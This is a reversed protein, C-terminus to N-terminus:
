NAPTKGRLIVTAIGYASLKTKLTRTDDPTGKFSVLIRYWTTGGSESQTVRAPFGGGQLKKQMAQAAASNTFAAVQYVYDYVARDQNNQPKGPAPQAAPPKVAPKSAVTAAPKAPPAAPKPTEARARSPADVSTGAPAPAPKAAPPEKARLTDHYRLEQPQLVKDMAADAIDNGSAPAPMVRALEPVIEEPNHGRGLMIGFIFVWVLIFLGFFSGFVVKPLGLTVTLTKDWLRKRKARAGAPPADSGKPPGGGRDDKGQPAQSM